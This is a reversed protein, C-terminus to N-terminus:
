MMAAKPSFGTSKLESRRDQHCKASSAGCHRLKRQPAIEIPSATGFIAAKMDGFL